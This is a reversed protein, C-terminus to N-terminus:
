CRIQFKMTSELCYVRGLIWIRSIFSGLIVGLFILLINEPSSSKVLFLKFEVENCQQITIVKYCIATFTDDVQIGGRNALEIGM